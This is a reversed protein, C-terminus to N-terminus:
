TLKVILSNQHKVWKNKRLQCQWIVIVRWGTKKLQRIKELVTKEDGATTLEQPKQPANSNM